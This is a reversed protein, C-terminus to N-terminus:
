LLGAQQVFLNKSSEYLRAYWSVDLEPNPTPTGTLNLKPTLTALRGFQVV